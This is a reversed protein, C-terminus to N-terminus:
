ETEGLDYRPCVNKDSGKVNKYWEGDTDKGSVWDKFDPYATLIHTRETPWHWKTSADHLMFMQSVKGEEPPAITWGGSGDSEWNSTIGSSNQESRDDDVFVTLGGQPGVRGGSGFGEISFGDNLYLVCTSAKIKSSGDTNIMMTSPYTGDGFWHHIESADDAVEGNRHIESIKSAGKFESGEYKLGEEKFVGPKLTYTKGDKTYQVYLPLTGGACLPQFTVKKYLEVKGTENGDKDKTVQNGTVSTIKMVMDNFDFDDTAGLDEVAWLWSITEETPEVPDETIKEDDDNTIDAFNSINFILDNVDRDSSKEPRYFDAPTVDNRTLRMDEFTLFTRGSKPHKVSLASIQNSSAGDAAKNFRKQSFVVYEEKKKDTNGKTYPTYQEYFEQPYIIKGDSGRESLIDYSGVVKLYMGLNGVWPKPDGKEDIGYTITVDYGRSRASMCVNPPYSAVEEQHPLYRSWYSNVDQWTGGKNLFAESDANYERSAVSRSRSRASPGYKSVSYAGGQQEWTVTYHINDYGADDMITVIPTISGFNFTSGCYDCTTGAKGTYYTALYAAVNQKGNATWDHVVEGDKVPRVMQVKLFTVNEGSANQISIGQEKFLTLMEDSLLIEFETAAITKYDNDSSYKSDGVYYDYGVPNNWWGPRIILQHSKDIKFRLKYTNDADKFVNKDLKRTDWGGAEDTYTRAWNEEESAESFLEKTVDKKYEDSLAFYEPWKNIVDSPVTNEETNDDSPWIYEKTIHHPSTLVHVYDFIGDYDSATVYVRPWCEGSGVATLKITKTSEDKYIQCIDTNWDGTVSIKDFYDALLLTKGNKDKLTVNLTRTDGLCMKLESEEIDVSKVTSAPVVKYTFDKEVGDILGVGAGYKESNKLKTQIAVNAYAIGDTHDKTLKLPTVIGNNYIRAFSDPNQYMTEESPDDIWFHYAVRSHYQSGYTDIYKQYSMWGETGREIEVEDQLNYNEGLEFVPNGNKLRIGTIQDDYHAQVQLDGPARDEFIKFSIFDELSYNGTKDAVGGKKLLPNGKEDLLYVGLEHKLNTGYYYPFLTFTGDAGTNIRFDEVISKGEAKRDNLWNTLEYSERNFKGSEPLLGVWHDPNHTWQKTNKSYYSDWPTTSILPSIQQTNFYQYEGGNEGNGRNTHKVSVGYKGAYEGSEVDCYETYEVPNYNIIKGEEDVTTAGPIGRSLDSCDITEGLHGYFKRNNVKVLFDDCSEPVDVPVEITGSIDTLDAVLYYTDQVKGYVKVSSCVGDGLNISVTAEKALNWDQNPDILGFDKIFNRTYQEEATIIYPDLQCGLFGASAAAVLTSGLLLKKSKSLNPFM